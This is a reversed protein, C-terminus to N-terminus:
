LVFLASIHGPLVSHSLLSLQRSFKHFLICNFPGYMFVSISVLVSSFPTPLSPQNITLLMFRLMSVTHLHTRPFRIYIRFRLLRFLLFLRHMIGHARVRICCGIRICFRENQDSRSYRGIGGGGSDGGGIVVVVM